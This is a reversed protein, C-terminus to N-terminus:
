CKKINMLKQRCRKATDEYHKALSIYDAPSRARRIEEFMDMRIPSVHTCGTVLGVTILALLSLLINM